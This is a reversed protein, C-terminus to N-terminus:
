PVTFAAQLREVNRQMTQLYDGDPSINGCPYFVICSVGRKRLEEETASQPPAEWIM